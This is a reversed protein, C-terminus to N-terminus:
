KNVCVPGIGRARSIEDTLTRGCKWCNGLHDAYLKGAIPPTVDRVKALVGDAAKRGKMNHLTDSAQVQVKRDGSKWTSVRYFALHGDETEVAYYGDPVDTFKDRPTDNRWGQASQASVRMSGLIAGTAASAKEQSATPPIRKAKAENIRLKLRNIVDTAQGKLMGDRATVFWTNAQNYTVVDVRELDSLLSLILQEQPESMADAHYRMETMVKPTHDKRKVAGAKRNRAIARNRANDRDIEAQTLEHQQYIVTTGNHPKDNGYM